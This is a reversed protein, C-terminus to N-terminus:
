NPLARYRRIHNIVNRLGYKAVSHKADRFGDGYARSSDVEVLHKYAKKLNRAYQAEEISSYSGQPDKSEFWDLWEHGMVQCIGEAIKPELRRIGQIGLWAHMMEHALVGGTMCMPLGYLVMITAKCGTVEYDKEELIVRRGRLSSSTVSRLDISGYPLVHTLGFITANPHVHGLSTGQSTHRSMEMRTVLFVPVQEQIEM